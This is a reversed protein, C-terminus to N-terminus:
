KAGEKAVANLFLAEKAAADLASATYKQSLSEIVGAGRAKPFAVRRNTTSTSGLPWHRTLRAGFCHSFTSHSM